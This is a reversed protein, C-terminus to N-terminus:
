ISRMRSLRQQLKKRYGKDFVESFDYVNKFKDLDDEETKSLIKNEVLNFIINGFDETGNIGWHELVTLTMPGFKEILLDKMGQLIEEGSVHAIRGRKKQTFTLAEMVFEYADESYRSDQNHIREIISSFNEGM